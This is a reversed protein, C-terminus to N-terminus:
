LHHAAAGGAGLKAGRAARPEGAVNLFVTEVHLVPVRMLVSSAAADEAGPEAGGAARLQDAFTPLITEM